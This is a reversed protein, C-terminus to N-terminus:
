VYKMKRLRITHQLFDLSSRLCVINTTLIVLFGKIANKKEECFELAFLILWKCVLEIKQADYIYIATHKKKWEPTM